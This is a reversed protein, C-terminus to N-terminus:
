SAITKVLGIIATQPIFDYNGRRSANSIVPMKGDVKYQSASDNRKIFKFNIIPLVTSFKQKYISAWLNPPVKKRFKQGTLLYFGEPKNTNLYHIALKFDSDKQRDVTKESNGTARRSMWRAMAIICGTIVGFRGGCM